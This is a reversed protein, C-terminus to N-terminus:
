LVSKRGSRFVFFRTGLYNSGLAIASAIILAFLPKVSSFAILILSYIAFNFVAGLGNVLTFRGWENFRNTDQSHFTFHRHCAWTVTLAILISLVRGWFPDMEFSITLLALFGADIAFGLGGVLCFRTFISSESQITDLTM